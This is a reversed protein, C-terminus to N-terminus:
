LGIRDSRYLLSNLYGFKMNLLHNEGDEIRAARADRFLKELPYERTLGYGGFLQLAEDVVEFALDTCTVKSAGTFYPHKAPSLLTYETARRAVARITEVKRAMAGLRYQVMQHDSLLAGGQRREHVYALAVEFAARAMGTAMQGMGVGATSWTNAHGRWYQERSSVAYRLPVKVNDFYIEGQPLARQGLKELPKGRSVGPLDLPVIVEIGHPHGEEDFFGNGYDAVITLIAVQAVSGNSVWASSQGNIVIDGGSVKATLNGKNGQPATAHREGPYLMTGDSGRDPQTAIWCGLKNATLDILEQNAARKAIMNPFAAAALSVTLGVDGWGFEEIVIAQLRALAQPPVDDADTDFSIGASAATKIFDWYPSGPAIADEASLKDIAIATPRMVDQAFKHMAQQINREEESLVEFGTLEVYPLDPRVSTLAAHEVQQTM